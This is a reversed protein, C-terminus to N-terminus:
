GNKIATRLREIFQPTLDKETFGHSLAHERAKKLVEQEDKGRVIHKCDMGVDRCALIKGARAPEPARNKTLRKGIGFLVAGIIFLAIAVAFTVIIITGFIATGVSLTGLNNNQNIIFLFGGLFGLTILAIIIFLKGLFKIM